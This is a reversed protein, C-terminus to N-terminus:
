ACLAGNQMLDGVVVQVGVHQRLAAEEDVGVLYTRSTARADAIRVVRFAGAPHVDAPHCQILTLFVAAARRGQRQILGCM